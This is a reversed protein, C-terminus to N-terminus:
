KPFTCSSVSRDRRGPALELPMKQIKPKRADGQVLIPEEVAPSLNRPTKNLIKPLSGPTQLENCDSADNTGLYSHEVECTWPSITNFLAPSEPEFLMDDMLADVMIAKFVGSVQHQESTSHAAGGYIHPASDGALASAVSVRAKSVGGAEVKGAL